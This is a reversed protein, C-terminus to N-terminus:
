LTLSRVHLQIPESPDPKNGTPLAGAFPDASGIGAVVAISLGVFDLQGISCTDIFM